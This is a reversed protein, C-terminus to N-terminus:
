RTNIESHSQLSACPPGEQCSLAQKVGRRIILTQQIRANWLDVVLNWQELSIPMGSNMMLSDEIAGACKPERSPFNIM